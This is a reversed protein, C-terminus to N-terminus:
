FRAKVGAYYTRPLAPGYIYEVNRFAGKDFDNQFDDLINKVGVFAEIYSGRDRFFKYGIRFSINAMDGVKEWKDYPIYGAFHAVRMKGWYTMDTAFSLNDYTYMLLFSGYLDPVKQFEKSYTGGAFLFPNNGIIEDPIPVAVSGIGPVDVNVTTENVNDLGWTAYSAPDNEDLAKRPDVYMSRQRTLSMNFSFRKYKVSTEFEGGWVEAGTTNKRLFLSGAAPEELFAHNLKTYFGGILHEIKAKGLKYDFTFSSSYSRSTEARLFFDNQTITAEGAIVALHFDEVFVQPPRFGTSYSNRWDLWKTLHTVIALRPNYLVGKIESHKDARIGAVIDFLQGIKAEYQFFVAPSVYLFKTAGENQLNRYTLYDLNALTTTGNYVNGISTRYANTSVVRLDNLDEVTQQYGVLIKNNQNITYFVDLGGFVVNSSTRSFGDSGTNGVFEAGDGVFDVEGAANIQPGNVGNRQWNQLDRWNIYRFYNPNIQNIGPLVTHYAINAGYYAERETRSGSTYISYSLKENVVQQWKLIGIYNDTDIDETVAAQFPEKDLNDAGRRKEKSNMLTFNFEGKEIPKIFGSFGANALKNETIESFEDENRFYAENYRHNGFVYVGMKQNESVRSVAATTTNRPVVGGIWSEQTTVEGYDRKPFQPIVNIVGGVAGGGYLTSGGGKVVEIRNIMTEPIQQYLYVQALSGVVPVGNFLIQNYKNDLGNIRVGNFNCNACNVEPIVGSTGKLAQFLTTDGKAEMQRKNIIHTTVPSEKLLKKTKTGTVVVPTKNEDSKEDHSYIDSVTVICLLLILLKKKQM